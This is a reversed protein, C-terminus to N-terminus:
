SLERGLDGQRMLVQGALAMVEEALAAIRLPGAQQLCLFPQVQSLREVKPDPARWRAPRRM